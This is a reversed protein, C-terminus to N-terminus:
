RFSLCYMKNVVVDYNISITINVRDRAIKSINVTYIFTTSRSRQFQGLDVRYIGISLECAVDYRIDITINAMDTVMKSINATFIHMVKIKSCILTLNLYALRFGMHSKVNSLLLLTLM